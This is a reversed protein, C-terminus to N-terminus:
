QRKFDLHVKIPMGTVADRAQIEPPQILINAPDEGEKGLTEPNVAGSSWLVSSGRIASSRSYDVHPDAQKVELVIGDPNPKMALQQQLRRVMDELEAIRQNKQALQQELAAVRGHDVIPGPQQALLRELQAIRANLANVLADSSSQGLSALASNIRSILDSLVRNMQDRYQTMSRGIVKYAAALNAALDLLERNLQHLWTTDFPRRQRGKKTINVKHHHHLGADICYQSGPVHEFYSPGALLTSSAVKSSSWKRRAEANMLKPNPSGADISYSTTSDYYDDGDTGITDLENAKHQVFRALNELKRYVQWVKDIDPGYTESTIDIQTSSTDYTSGFQPISAPGTTSNVDAM